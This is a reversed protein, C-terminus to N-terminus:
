LGGQVEDFAAFMNAETPPATVAMNEDLAYFSPFFRLGLEREIGSDGGLVPVGEVPYLSDWRGAEGSEVSAGTRDQTLVTIWFVDGAEVAARLEGYVPELGYADDGGSLWDSIANCPGCWIASVDLIVPKGHGAFDYIDVEEGYHDVYVWRGIQEGPRGGGRGPEPAGFDDKNAQYPWGGTYIVSESDLPDKGETIEDGDRYGDADTDADEPDTGLEAEEDATLGDADNDSTDPGTGGGDDGSGGDGAAGDDTAGDGGDTSKDDTEEATCAVAFLSLFGVLPLTATRM